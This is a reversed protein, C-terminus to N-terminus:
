RHRFATGQRRKDAPIRRPPLRVTPHGCAAWAARHKRLDDCIADLNNGFRQAHEQRFRRVEEVVPDKM